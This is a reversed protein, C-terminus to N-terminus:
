LYWNVSQVWINKCFAAAQVCTQRSWRFTARAQKYQLPLSFGLIHQNLEEAQSFCTQFCEWSPSGKYGSSGAKVWNDWSVRGEVELEVGPDRGKSTMRSLALTTLCHRVSSLFLREDGFCRTSWPWILVLLFCLFSYTVWLKGLWWRKEDQITVWGLLERMNM